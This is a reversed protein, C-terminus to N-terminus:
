GILRWVAVNLVSAFAVWAVLPVPRWAAMGGLRHFAVATALIVSLQPVINIVGLPPNYAGIFMWSWAANLALQIFCISLVFRRAAAALHAVRCIDDACPAGDLGPRFGLQAVRM